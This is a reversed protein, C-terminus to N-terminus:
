ASKGEWLDPHRGAEGQKGRRKSARGHGYPEFWEGEARHAGCISHFHGEFDRITCAALIELPQGCASQLDNVRSALDNTVGIKILGSRNNRLVYLLAKHDKIERQRM